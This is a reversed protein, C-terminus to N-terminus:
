EMRSFLSSTENVSNKLSFEDTNDIKITLLYKTPPTPTYELIALVWREIQPTSLQTELLPEKTEPLSSSSTQPLSTEATKVHQYAKTGKKPDKNGLFFFLSTVLIIGVLIFFFSRKRSLREENELGM